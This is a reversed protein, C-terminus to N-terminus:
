LVLSIEKLVSFWNPKAGLAFSCKNPRARSPRVDRPRAWILKCSVFGRLFYYEHCHNFRYEYSSQFLIWLSSQLSIWLLSQITKVILISAINMVHISSVNVVLIQLSIWLLISAINMVLILASNVASISFILHQCFANVANKGNQSFIRFVTSSSQPPNSEFHHWQCSYSGLLCNQDNGWFKSDWLSILPPFIKKIHKTAFHCVFCIHIKNWLANLTPVLGRGSRTVPRM